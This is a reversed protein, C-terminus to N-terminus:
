VGTATVMVDPPNTSSVTLNNEVDYLKFSVSTASAATVVATQATATSLPQIQIVPRNIFGASSMDVTTPNGAYTVTDNFITTDKEVTYRIKDITFDFQNPNKNNVVFKLQFQRFVRSGAQYPKFGDDVTGQDFQTTIVNGTGTTTPDARGGNFLSADDSQSTRILTQATVAGLTGAYTAQTDDNYQTMDVLLYSNGAVTINSFANSGSPDGNAFYVEALEIEDNDIFGAIFAHSNANAYDGQDITGGATYTTFGSSDLGTTLGSNTYVELSTSNIRKLFV